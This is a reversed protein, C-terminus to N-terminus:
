YYGDRRRGHKRGKKGNKEERSWLRNMKWEKGSGFVRTAKGSKENGTKEYWSQLLFFPRKGWVKQIYNGSFLHPKM